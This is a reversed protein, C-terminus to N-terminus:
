APHLVIIEGGTYIDVACAARVAEGATHGMALAGLAVSKGSGMAYANSRISDWGDVSLSLVRGDYIVIAQAERDGSSKMPPPDGVMGGCFWTRFKELQDIGGCVGWLVPGIRGIKSVYGVRNGQETVLSDAALARGDWASTTM